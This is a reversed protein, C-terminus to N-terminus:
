GKAVFAHFGQLKAPVLFLLLQERACQEQELCQLGGKEM